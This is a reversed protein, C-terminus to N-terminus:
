GDVLVGDGKDPTGAKKAFYRQCADRLETTLVTGYEGGDGSMQNNIIHRLTRLHADVIKHTDEDWTELNELFNLVINALTGVLNYGFMAANAKIQMIEVIVPQMAERPDEPDAPMAALAQELQDLFQTAMPVFDTNDAEIITQSKAIRAEDVDGSGVKSQLIRTAKIINKEAM